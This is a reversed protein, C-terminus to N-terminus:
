PLFAARGNKGIRMNVLWDLWRFKLARPALHETVARTNLTCGNSTKLTADSLFRIYFFSRDIVRRQSVQLSINETTTFEVERPYHVGFIDRRKNRTTLDAQHVALKGDCVLLLKTVPSSGDNALYRYFIATMEDVFHARGWQWASVNAFMPQTDRNHDHYGAGKFQHQNIIQRQSNEVRIAGSVTCRPAVMNWEHMQNARQSTTEFNSTDFDGDRMQWSFNAHLRRAGRLPEDITM